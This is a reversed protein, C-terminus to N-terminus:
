GGFRSVRLLNDYAKEYFKSNGKSAIHKKYVWDYDV